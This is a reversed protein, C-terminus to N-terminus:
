EGTTPLPLPAAKESSAQRAEAYTWWGGPGHPDPMVMTYQRKPKFGLMRLWRPTDVWEFTTVFYGGVKEDKIAKM